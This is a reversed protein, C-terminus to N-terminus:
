VHDLRHARPRRLGVHDDGAPVSGVLDDGEGVGDGLHALDLVGVVLADLRDLTDLVSVSTRQPDARTMRPCIRLSCHPPAMIRPTSPIWARPPRCPNPGTSTSSCSGTNWSAHSRVARPSVKAVTAWIGFGLVDFNRCAMSRM